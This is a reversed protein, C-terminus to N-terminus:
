FYARFKRADNKESVGFRSAHLEPCGATPIVCPLGDARCVIPLPISEPSGRAPAIVESVHGSRRTCM